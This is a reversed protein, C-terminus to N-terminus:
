DSTPELRLTPKPDLEDLRMRVRSVLQSMGGAEAERLTERLLERPGIPTAARWLLEAYERRMLAVVPRLGCAANRDLGAEFHRDALDLEGLAAALLGLFRETSGLCAAQTVQVLQERYPM